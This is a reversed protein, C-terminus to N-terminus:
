LKRTKTTSGGSGPVVALKRKKSSSDGSRLVASTGNPRHPTTNLRQTGYVEKRNDEAGMMLEDDDEESSSAHLDRNRDENNDEAYSDDDDPKASRKSQRTQRTSNTRRVYVVESASSSASTSAQASTSERFEEDDVEEEKVPIEVTTQVRRIIRPESRMDQRAIRTPSLPRQSRSSDHASNRTKTASSQARVPDQTPHSPTSQEIEAERPKLRSSKSKQLPRTNRQLLESPSERDSSSPPYVLSHGHIQFPNSSSSARKTMTSSTSPEAIETFKLNPTYFTPGM